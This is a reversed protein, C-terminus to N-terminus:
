GQSRLEDGPTHSCVQSMRCRRTVATVVGEGMGVYLRAALMEMCLQCFVVRGTLRVLRGPYFQEAM